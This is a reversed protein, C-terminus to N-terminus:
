IFGEPFEERMEPTDIEGDGEYHDAWADGDYDPEDDGRRTMKLIQADGRIFGLVGRSSTALLRDQICGGNHWQCSTKGNPMIAHEKECQGSIEFIQRSQGGM